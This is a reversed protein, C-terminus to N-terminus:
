SGNTPRDAGDRQKGEKAENRSDKEDAQAEDGTAVIPSTSVPTSRVITDQAWRESFGALFALGTYWLSVNSDAADLPLMGGKVLVYLAIGFVSGVLTRFAGSVVTVVPGQRPNVTLNQGRTIRMMVSTISGLGGTVAVALFLDHAAGVSEWVGGFLLVLPLIIAFGLPLGYLYYRVATQLEVRDVYHEIDDLRRRASRAAALLTARGAAPVPKDKYQDAVLNLTRLLPVLVTFILNAVVKRNRRPLLRDGGRETARALWVARNLADDLEPVQLAVNHEGTWALVQRRSRLSYRSHVQTIVVAGSGKRTLNSNYIKGNVRQWDRVVKGDVGSEGTAEVLQRLSRVGPWIHVSKEDRSESARVPVKRAWKVISM